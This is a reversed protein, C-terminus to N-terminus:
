ASKQQAANLQSVYKKKAMNFLRSQGYLFGPRRIITEARGARPIRTIFSTHMTTYHRSAHTIEKTFRRLSCITKGDRQLLYTTRVRAVIVTPDHIINKIKNYNTRKM